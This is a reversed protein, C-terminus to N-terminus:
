SNTVDLGDALYIVGVAQQEGTARTLIWQQDIGQPELLVDAKIAIALRRMAEQPSILTAVSEPWSLLFSQRFGMSHTEVQLFGLANELTVDLSETVFGLSCNLHELIKIDECEEKLFFQMSKAKAM